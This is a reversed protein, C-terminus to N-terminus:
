KHLKTVIWNKEIKSMTLYSSVPTTSEPTTLEYEIIVNSKDIEQSGVIQFTVKSSIETIVKKVAPDLSEMDKAAANIQAAIEDSCHAAAHHFDNTFYADLFHQAIETADPGKPTCSTVGWLLLATLLYPFLRKM